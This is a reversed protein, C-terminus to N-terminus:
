DFKVTVVDLLSQIYQGQAKAFKPPIANGIMQALLSKPYSCDFWYNDPFSQLIAAERVSISRNQTPHLFRGKSPSLCGGTITPSPRDWYMRGYVDSYGVNSKKHCELWYKTPLDKRNGGDRPILNIIHQIYPTHNSHIKHIADQSDAPQPLEGIADRVTLIKTHLSLPFDVAHSHSGILVLRKRSQPVGFDKVNIIKLDIFYNMNRLSLLMENFRDYHVIQPVNEMMIFEPKIASVARLYDQILTNREDSYLKRKNNRNMQTFGQCPPCGAVIDIQGMKRFDSNSIKRIDQSLMKVNPHNSEYVKSIKPDLEVAFKVQIGAQELGETLGGCGAFLDIASTM